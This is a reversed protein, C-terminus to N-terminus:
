RAPWSGISQLTLTRWIDANNRVDCMKFFVNENSSYIPLPLDNVDPGSHYTSSNM